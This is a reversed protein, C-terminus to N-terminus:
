RSVAFHSRRTRGDFGTEVLYLGPALTHKWALRIPGAVRHARVWRNELVKGDPSMLRVRFGAGTRTAATPGDWLFWAQGADASVLRPTTGVPRPGAMATGPTVNVQWTVSDILLGAPDKRVLSTTDKITATVRHIGQALLATFRNGSVEPRVKGNVSWTVPLARGLVPKPKVRLPPALNAATTVPGPAPFASDLPSVKDYMSLLVTESCVECFPIGNERMRCNQKPRFWGKANYAAGEFLGPLGAYTQTEPTPVPTAASIWHSWRIATRTVAKTTNPSEWPTVGAYDYEDGLGSFSHQAEHAIIEPNAYNAVAIPGGSGGYVDSNVVVFQMDAEPVHDNIVAFGKTNDTVLLRGSYSAGFYTNRYVGEAPIDAGSQASPVFIGYVNFYDAYEKLPEDQIVGDAVLKLHSLFRSKESALYGDGLIVINVRKDRPGTERVVVFEQTQARVEAAMGMAILSAALATAPARM